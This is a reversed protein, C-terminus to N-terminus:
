VCLRLITNVSITVLVTFVACQYTIMIWTLCYICKYIVKHCDTLARRWYLSDEELQFMEPLSSGWLPEDRRKTESVGRNRRGKVPQKLGPATTNCINTCISVPVPQLDSIEVPPYETVQEPPNARSVHSRQNSGCQQHFNPHHQTPLAATQLMEPPTKSVPSTQFPYQESEPFNRYQRSADKLNMQVSQSQRPVRISSIPLSISSLPISLSTYSRRSSIDDSTPHELNTTELKMSSSFQCPSRFSTFMRDASLFSPHFISFDALCTFKGVLAVWSIM